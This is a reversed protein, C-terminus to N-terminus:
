VGIWSLVPSEPPLPMMEPYQRQPRVAVVQIQNNRCYAECQAQSYYRAFRKDSSLLPVETVGSPVPVYESVSWGENLICSQRIVAKRM